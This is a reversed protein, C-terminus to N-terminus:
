EQPKAFVVLRKWSTGPPWCTQLVLMEENLQPNLFETDDATIVKTETVIYTFKKGWFWIEIPDGEKMDKLSYFIANYQTINWPANTSHSFLFITKTIGGDEGPFSTGKAHAIGNKLAEEYEKPNNADVNAIINSDVGISPISIHFQQEIPPTSPIPSPTQVISKQEAEPLFPNTTRLVVSRLELAAIPSIFLILAAVSTALLANGVFRYSFSPFSIHINPFSFAFTKKEQVIPVIRQEERWATYIDEIIFSGHIDIYPNPLSRCLLQIFVYGTKLNTRTNM